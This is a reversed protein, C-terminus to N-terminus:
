APFEARRLGNKVAPVLKAVPSGLVHLSDPLKLLCVVAFSSASFRFRLSLFYAPAGTKRPSAFGQRRPCGPLLRHSPFSIIRQGWEHGVLFGSNGNQITVQTVDDFMRFDASLRPNKCRCHVFGKPVRGGRASM